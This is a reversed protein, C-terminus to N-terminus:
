KWRAVATGACMQHDYYFNLSKMGIKTFVYRLADENYFWYHGPSVHRETLLPIQMFVGGNKPTTMKDLQSFVEWPEVLHEFVHWALLWDTALDFIESYQVIQYRKDKILREIERLRHEVFDNVYVKDFYDLAGASRIGSGAGIELLKLGKFSIQNNNKLWDFILASERAEILLSDREKPVPYFDSELEWKKQIKEGELNSLEVTANYVVRCAKCSYLPAHAVDASPYDCFKTFGQVEGCVGCKGKALFNPQSIPEFFFEENKNISLRKRSLFNKVQSTM